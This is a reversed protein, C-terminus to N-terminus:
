RFTSTECRIARLRTITFASTKRPRFSRRYMTLCLPIPATLLFCRERIPIRFVPRYTNTAKRCFMKPPEQEESELRAEDPAAETVPYLPEPITSTFIHSYVYVNAFVLCTILVYIFTSLPSKNMINKLAYLTGKMINTRNYLM